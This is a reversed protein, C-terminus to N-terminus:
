GQPAVRRREGGQRRAELSSPSIYQLLRERLNDHRDSENALMGEMDAGPNLYELTKSDIMRLLNALTRRDEHTLPSLIQQIFQWGAMTAPKLAEQRKATITLRVMRRDRTDRARKILGSRVMRDIMMSVSNLSRQLWRAVDTPRVPTPLYQITVLVAYRESGLKYEGFVEDECMKLLAYTRHIMLWLSLILNEAEHEITM